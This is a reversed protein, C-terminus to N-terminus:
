CTSSSRARNTSKMPRNTHGSRAWHLVPKWAGALPRDPLEQEPTAMDGRTVVVDPQMEWALQKLGDAVGDFFLIDIPGYNSMLERLQAQNHAM